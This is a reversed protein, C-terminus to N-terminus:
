ATDAPTLKAGKMVARPVPNTFATDLPRPGVIGWVLAAPLPVLLIAIVWTTKGVPSLASSRAVRVVAYSLAAIYAAFFPTSIATALAADM